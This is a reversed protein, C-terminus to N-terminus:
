NDLKTLKHYDSGNTNTNDINCVDSTRFFEIYIKGNEKLMICLYPVSDGM